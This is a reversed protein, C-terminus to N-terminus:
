VMCSMNNSWNSVFLRMWGRKVTGFKNMGSSKVHCSIFSSRIRTFDLPVFRIRGDISAWSWSPGRSKPPIAVDWVKLNQGYSFSLSDHVVAFSSAESNFAQFGTRFEDRRYVRWHLDEVVHDRWVGAFYEDGTRSAIIASLGSLAPLKDESVTLNRESYRQIHELWGGRWRGEPNEMQPSFGEIYSTHGWQDFGHESAPLCQRETLSNLSFISPDFSSGDESVFSKECEWYMQDTAYHITRSSLLREQLTWGRSNLQEKALPDFRHGFGGIFYPKPEKRTSSPTWGVHLYLWNKCEDYSGHMKFAVFRKRSLWRHGSPNGRTDMMPVAGEISPLGISLADPPFRLGDSRAEFSPFCTDPSSSAAITLYSNAFIDAMRASEREWDKGDDQIICLTDIWLYRVQLRRCIIVADAFAKPLRKMDIGNRFQRITSKMTKVIDTKDGWRHSLTIYTSEINVPEVLRIQSANSDVGVDLVRTPLKANLLRWPACTAGHTRNCLQLKEELRNMSLDSSFDTAKLRGPIVKALPSDPICSLTLEKCM